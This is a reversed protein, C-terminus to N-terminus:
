RNGLVTKGALFSAFAGAHARVRKKGDRASRKSEEEEFQRAIEESGEGAFPMAVPNSTWARSDFFHRIMSENLGKLEEHARDLADKLHRAGAIFSPDTLCERPGIANARACLEERWPAQRLEDLLKQMSAPLDRPASPPPPDRPSPDKHLGPFHFEFFKYEDSSVALYRSVPAPTIPRTGFQGLHDLCIAHDSFRGATSWPDAFSSIVKKDLTLALARIQRINEPYSYTLLLELAPASIRLRPVALKRERVLTDLLIPIIELPRETIPPIEYRASFRAVLDTRVEGRTMLERLEAENRARNTAAVVRCVYPRHLMDGIPLVKGTQLAVLLRTQLGKDLELLEDLFLVGTGAIVFASLQARVFSAAGECIGFLQSALLDEPTEVV